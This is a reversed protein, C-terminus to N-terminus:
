NREMDQPGDQARAMSNFIAVRPRAVRLAFRLVALREFFRALGWGTLISASEGEEGRRGLLTTSKPSTEEGSYSRRAARWGSNSLQRFKEVWIRSFRWHSSLSLGILPCHCFWWEARFDELLVLPLSWEVSRKNLCSVPNGNKTRHCSCQLSATHMHRSRSPAPTPFLTRCTIVNQKGYISNILTNRKSFRGGSHLFSPISHRLFLCMCCYIM